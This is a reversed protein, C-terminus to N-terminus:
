WERRSDFFTFILVYVDIINGTTNYPSSVQDRADIPSCLSLTNSFL